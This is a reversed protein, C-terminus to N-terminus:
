ASRLFPRLGISYRWGSGLLHEAVGVPQHDVLLRHHPDGLPEGAVRQGLGVVEALRHPLFIARTSPRRARSTRDGAALAGAVAAPEAVLQEVDDLREGVVREVLAVGEAVPEDGVLGRVELRVVRDLVEGAQERAHLAVEVLRRDVEGVGPRHADLHEGRVDVARDGVEGGQPGVLHGVADGQGEAARPRDREAQRRDAVDALPQDPQQQLLAVGFPGNALKWSKASRTGSGTSLLRATSDSILAPANSESPWVRLPRSPTNSCTM